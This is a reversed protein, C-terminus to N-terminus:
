SKAAPATLFSIHQLVKDLISRIDWAANAICVLARSLLLMNTKYLRVDPSLWDQEATLNGYYRKRRVEAIGACYRGKQQGRHGRLGSGAWSQLEYRAAPRPSGGQFEKWTGLPGCHKTKNKFFKGRQAAPEPEEDREERDGTSRQM